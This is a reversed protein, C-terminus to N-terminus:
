WGVIKVYLHIGSACREILRAVARHVKVGRLKRAAPLFDRWERLLRPAQLRNFVTDGYVDIGIMHPYKSATAPPLIRGVIARPDDVTELIEGHETMLVIQVSLWGM